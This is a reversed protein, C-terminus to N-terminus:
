AEALERMAGRKAVARYTQNVWGLEASGREHHDIWTRWCPRGERDLSREWREPHLSPLHQSHRWHGRVEHRARQAAEGRHQLHKDIERIRRRTAPVEITVISSTMYPRYRGASRIMGQPRYPVFRVPVENLIALAAVIFALEGRQDAMSKVLLDEARKPADIDNEIARLYSPELTGCSFRSLPHKGAKELRVMEILTENDNRGTWPLLTYGPSANVQAMVAKIEQHPGEGSLLAQASMRGGLHVMHMIPYYSAHYEGEDNEVTAIRIVGFGGDPMDPLETLLWGIRKPRGFMFAEPEDWFRFATDFDAELWMNPYPLRAAGIWRRISKANPKEFALRGVIDALEADLTFPRAQRIAKQFGSFEREKEARKWFANFLDLNAM